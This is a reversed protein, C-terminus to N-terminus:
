KSRITRLNTDVNNAKLINYVRMHSIKIDSLKNENIYDAIMYTTYKKNWLDICTSSIKLNIDNQKKIKFEKYCLDNCFKNKLIIKDCYLCSKAIYKKNMKRGLAWGEPIIENQQIKKSEYTNVNYIWKIGSQSNNKGKNLESMAKSFENRNSEYLKSNVYRENTGSPDSKMFNLAKVMKYYYPTDKKVMKTLLYHCIFHKRASFRVINNKDDSGGLSRPIIHHNECYGKLEEETVSNIIKYYLKTYKNDLFITSQDKIKTIDSNFYKLKHENVPNYKCNDIHFKIGSSSFSKFDCFSCNKLIKNENYPCTNKHKILNGNTTYVFNCDECKFKKHQNEPNNGCVKIHKNLYKQKKCEKSCFECTYITTSKM